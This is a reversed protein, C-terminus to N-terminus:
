SNASRDRLRFWNVGVAVILLLGLYGLLPYVTGVLKTFGVQGLLLAISCSLVSFGRFRNTEAPTFRASFAFFMGVATSYIMCTISITMLIGVSPSLRTALALTPLEAGQLSNLNFLLAINILLILVGLGIGGLIGGLSTTKIDGSRGSIVALMPFGVAINFSAYLVAAIAWHPAVTEQQRSLSLLEDMDANATTLSYVTIIVVMAMLIPTAASVLDIIRRVNLCLTLIVLAAMFAGGVVTPFGFQQAFLSGTGALMAVGVGYLFFTLLIDMVTGAKRGFLIHLVEKHSSASLQTSMRSIQRGLFAFLLGAVVTGAIGALGYGTFFQLVEQGSAFGGGIIVGMYAFALQIAHKNM